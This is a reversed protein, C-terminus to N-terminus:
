RTVAELRLGMDLGCYTVRHGNVLLVGGERFRTASEPLHLREIHVRGNGHRVNVREDPDADDDAYYAVDCRRCLDPPYEETVNEWTM